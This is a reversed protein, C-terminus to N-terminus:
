PREDNAPLPILVNLHFVGDKARCELTGGYREAILRMSRTGYGHNMTDRMGNAGHKTTEPLGNRFRLAGQYYNEVHMVVVGARERVTLSISRHGRDALASVAEIANDLANGFLSYLDAAPMFSLAAGDAITSLTIHERECILAKETLIVDLAENGTHLAADYIGVAQELEDLAEGSVAAGGKRLKRIQHKLDHCKLNIAEINARSLEYHRQADALMRETEAVEASLRKGYLMRYQCFLVFTCVFGHAGRLALLLTRPVDYLALVKIALDFGVAVIVVILMVLLMGRDEIDALGERTIRRIFALYCVTYVLLASAIGLLVALLASDEAGLPMFISIRVVGEVGSALNQMTQAATAYFLAVWPTTRRCFLICAMLVVPVLCFTAAQSAVSAETGRDQIQLSLATGVLAVAAACACVVAVRAGHHERPETGGALLRAAVLMQAAVVAPSALECAFAGFATADLGM